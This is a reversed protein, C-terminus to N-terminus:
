LSFTIYLIKYKDRFNSFKNFTIPAEEFYIEKDDNEKEKQEEEIM